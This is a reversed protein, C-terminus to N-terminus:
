DEITQELLMGTLFRFKTFENLFYYCVKNYDIDWPCSVIYDPRENWVLGLYAEAAFLGRILQTGNVRGKLIHGNKFMWIKIETTYPIYSPSLFCFDATHEREQVVKYISDKPKSGYMELALDDDIEFVGEFNPTFYYIVKDCNKRVQEIRREHIENNYLRNSEGVLGVTLGKSHQEKIYNEYLSFDQVIM